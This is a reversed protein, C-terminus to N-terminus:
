PAREFARINVEFNLAPRGTPAQKPDPRILGDDVLTDCAAKMASADRLVGGIERRTTRANFKSAGTKRLHRALVMAVRDATPIAADGYVREAMPIFYGDMMAAAANVAAVSIQEPESTTASACWWLYEIVLSLRLAHGRAKGLSGAFLGSAERSRVDMERGFEELAKEADASLRVQIPAPNGFEDSGMRLETLRAFANQAHLDTGIERAISFLPTTEPWAWLIRSALGDDSGDIIASLKDPQVGGLVGVSLHRVRLPEPNKMRDVVYSRGGYMEIAFARDSGGGGYRDFSGLWGSLEDRQLLLGRPLAAALAGLRETTADAVRIRPRSPPTPDAADTPMAPPQEGPKVAVKKVEAKWAERKAEAIHKRTEYDRNLDDFGAAMLDEAHQVLRCVVDIAPSKGASPAGVLGCWLIPPESWAPGALPWRVNGLAAGASALLAVAVYDEPASVRAAAAKHWDHWFRRFLDSPFVPAPRRGSGLLSLDPNAWSPPADSPTTATANASSGLELPRVSAARELLAAVTGGGEFWDSVDGREPLEPFHVVRVRVATTAFLSGIKDAWRRGPDDKDALVVVDRGRVFEACGEPVDSSGGFTFAPLENRGLTDVDKEGEPCFITNGTMVNAFPDVAGVYPTVVYGKPKKAQWGIKGTESHVVRYLDIFEGSARKIKARVPQGGRRYVHRRNPLEDRVKPPDDTSSAVFKAGPTVTPLILIGTSLVPRAAKNTAAAGNPISRPQLVGADFGSRITARAAAAGDKAVYGNAQAAIFLREEARQRDLGADALQGMAFSSACLQNNRGSTTGALKACEQALAAEAYAASM